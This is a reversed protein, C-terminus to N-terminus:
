YDVLVQEAASDYRVFVKREQTNGDAVYNVRYVFANGNSLGLFRAGTFSDQKYGASQIGRTLQAPLMNSLNQLVDATIM